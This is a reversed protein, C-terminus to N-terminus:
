ASIFANRLAIKNNPPFKENNYSFNNSISTLSTPQRFSNFIIGHKHLKKPQEALYSIEPIKFLKSNMFYPM